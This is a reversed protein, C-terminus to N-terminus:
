ILLCLFLFQRVALHCVQEALTAAAAASRQADALQDSLRVTEATLEAVRAALAAREDDHDGDPAAGEVADHEVAATEAVAAAELTAMAAALKEREASWASREAERDADSTAIAAKSADLATEAESLQFRLESLEDQAAQFRADAESKAQGLDSRVVFFCCPRPIPHLIFWRLGCAVIPM